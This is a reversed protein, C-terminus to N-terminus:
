GGLSFEFARADAPLERYVREVDARTEMLADVLRPDLRRAHDKRLTTWTEEWSRDPDTVRLLDLRDALAVVRAALPIHDGSLGMPYGSGDFCEHHGLAILAATRLAGADHGKLLQYGLRTHSQFAVSVGGDSCPPEGLTRDPLALTGIDHLMAGLEISEVEDPSLGIRAAVTGAIAAIRTTHNADAGNRWELIKALLRVGERERERLHSTRAAVLGGLLSARDKLLAQQRAMALLNRCRATGELPDIPKQLFDNIGQQLARRRLDRDEVVTVMLVPVDAFHSLRRLGRVFELGDMGPLRYDTIVLDAHYASAWKLAEVAGGFVVPTTLPDAGKAIECLIRRATSQDDVVMVPQPDRPTEARAHAGSDELGRDQKSLGLLYDLSLGYTTAIEALTELSPLMEGNLWRAATSVSRGMRQALATARGETSAAVGRADLAARLRAAFIGQLTSGLKPHNGL